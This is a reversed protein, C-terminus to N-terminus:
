LMKFAIIDIVFPAKEIYEDPRALDKLILYYRKSRDFEMSKLAIRIRTLRTSPDDGTSNAIFRYESSIKNGDEDIMYTECNVAQKREELKEYQEFEVTFSRTTIKRSLSKIRVGVPDYIERTRSSRMEGLKIVPVIMEQLSAGGHVYQIGGGQTKYLDYSYPVIVRMSDDLKFENTYPVSLDPDDTLLFRKSTETAHLSVIDSYKQSEHITNRRYFFGHDATIIFNSIQLNVFLKRTLQVIEDIASPVVDFVHSENHEGANDIANHYIYVISKDAMYARLEARSMANITEFGIAAYSENKQKLISDRAAISNTPQGDAFVAKDKYSLEKHPLLAAMGFRTETPLPALACEIDVSGKLMSDNRFRDYLERGAEYRLGDSIIVFLKKFNNKQVSRFFSDSLEFGIIEREPEKALADSFEKGIVNLYKTEYTLEIRDMLGEMHYIPMEIRRYAACAHRYEQDVAYVSDTYQRIYEAASLGLPVPRDLLRFFSIASQLTEYEAWHKEYWISNIRAQLIKEYNDYDLGGNKLGEAITEVTHMDICEFVDAEETCHIDRSVLLSDIKLEEALREQLAPYRKDNKIRDIFFKADIKGRGKLIFQEYFSPLKGFDAKQELLATFMFKKILAQITQDGDYNFDNSVTDWFHEEFGLKKLDNYRAGQEDFVLETLISEMTPAAAKVLVCMMARKLEHPKVEDSLTIFSVLKKIRIDSSFFKSYREVVRRLDSDTLGLRRMTLAVTDAYYEESYMLTDLLWNETDDPREQPIYIIYNSDPDEHEVTRKVAFENNECLLVRCCDFSDNLIDERFNQPPDYWFVIKRTNRGQDAFMRLLEKRAEQYDISAM